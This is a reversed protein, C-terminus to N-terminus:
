KKVVWIIIVSVFCIIAFPLFLHFMWGMGLLIICPICIAAILATDDTKKKEQIEETTLPVLLRVDLIVRACPSYDLIIEREPILAESFKSNFVFVESDTSGNELFIINDNYRGASEIRLIMGTKQIKQNKRIDEELPQKIKRKYRPTSILGFVLLVLVVVTIISFASVLQEDHLCEWGTWLWFAGFMLGIGILMWKYIIWQIFYLRELAKKNEASLAQITM